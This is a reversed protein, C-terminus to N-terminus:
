MPIEDQVKSRLINFDECPNDCIMKIICKSCPCEHEM